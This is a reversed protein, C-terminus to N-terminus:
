KLFHHHDISVNFKTHVIIVTFIFIKVVKSAGQVHLETYFQLRCLTKGMQVQGKQKMITITNKGSLGRPGM